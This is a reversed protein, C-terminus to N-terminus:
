DDYCFDRRTQIWNDCSDFFSPLDGAPPDGRGVYMMRFLPEKCIPCFRKKRLEKPVKLKNYSLAGFWTVTHHHSSIGCHSLQYWITGEVTKRIGINKVIFGSAFYNKRVDVIWGYGIIHFHPSFYWGVKDKRKSHYIVMGGLCHVSKLSLYAQKRLESLTAGYLRRPVSVTLHIPKLDRGKLVFRSLRRSAKDKERNAWSEWCIPCLARHCTKRHHEFYGNSTMDVGDLNSGNHAEGNLCGVTFYDGCDGYAEGSGTIPFDALFGNGRSGFVGRQFELDEKGVSDDVDIKEDTCEGGRVGEGGQVISQSSGECGVGGRNDCNSAIFRVRKQHKLLTSQSIPLIGQSLQSSM